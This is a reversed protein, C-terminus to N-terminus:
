KKVKPRRKAPIEAAATRLADLGPKAVRKRKAVRAFERERREAEEANRERMAQLALERPGIKQAM